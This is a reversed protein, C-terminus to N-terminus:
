GAVASPTKQPTVDLMRRIEAQADSWAKSSLTAVHQEM